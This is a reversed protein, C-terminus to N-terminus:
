RIGPVFEDAFDVDNFDVDNPEEILFTTGDKKKVIKKKTGPKAGVKAKSRAAASKLLSAPSVGEKSLVKAIAIFTKKLRDIEHEASQQAEVEAMLDRLAM